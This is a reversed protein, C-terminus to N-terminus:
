SRALSPTQRASSTEGKIIQHLEVIIAQLQQAQAAMEESASSSQEANAANQQTVQNMQMVASSIQAIGQTQEESGVSMEVVLSSVKKISTTIENLIGTFEETARVGNDANKKSGEILVSTNKAAEASRMALNRVEEAVVAFGKGAEGARAAEVAANLALLNTQFAIEDIVKIIKATEDSSKKIEQIAKAMGSMAAAGKDAATNAGNAITNAQIANDANKKTLSSMEELASSTEELSSAQESAGEALSQSSSAVQDSSSGIQEAGSTLGVIISNIPRTVSRTIAIIVVVLLASAGIAVGVLWWISSAAESNAKDLEEGMHDVAGEVIEAIDDVVKTATAFVEKPDLGYGGKGSNAIVTVFMEEIQMWHPKSKFSKIKDIFHQNLIIGRSSLDSQVQGKLISLNALAGTNIAVNAATIGTMTARFKGANEKASEVISISRIDERISPVQCLNALNVELDLLTMIAFSYRKIVEAAPIEKNSVQKRTVEEIAQVAQLAGESITKDANAQKLSERLVQKRSDVQSRQADLDERTIGSNVFGTSKGREKQLQHILGSVPKVLTIFAAAEKANILEKVGIAIMLGVAILYALMPIAAVASIKTTLTTKM